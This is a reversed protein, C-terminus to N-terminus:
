TAITPRDEYMSRGDNLYLWGKVIRYIYWILTAVLGVMGVAIVLSIASVACWLASFWFTRIQWRFHSELYTGRVDQLKIYNMIIAVIATIGAFLAAAYLGYIVTTLTKLSKTKEQYELMRGSQEVM